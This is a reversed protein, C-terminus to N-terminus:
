NRKRIALYALGVLVITALTFLVNPTILSNLAFQEPQGNVTLEINERGVLGVETPEVSLTFKFSDEVESTQGGPPTVKATITITEGEDLVCLLHDGNSSCSSGAQYGLLVNWGRLGGSSFIKFESEVNGTNTLDVEFRPANGIEGFTINREIDGQLSMEVDLVTEVSLSITIKGSRNAANSVSTAVMELLGGDGNEAGSNVEITLVIVAYYQMPIHSDVLDNAVIKEFAKDETSSIMPSNGDYYFTGTSQNFAGWGKPVLIPGDIVMGNFTLTRTATGSLGSFDFIAEDTMDGTNIVKINFSQSGGPPLVLMASRSLDDVSNLIIADMAFDRDSLIARFVFELQNDPVGDNNEDGNNNDGLNTVRVTLRSSELEEEGDISVVLYMIATARADIDIETVVQGDETEFHKGWGPQATQSIVSFRFRDQINGDNTVTIPFRVTTDSRGTQDDAPAGGSMGHVAKVTITLDQTDYAGGSSVPMVSFTITVEETALADLPLSITVDITGSKDNSFKSQTTITTSELTVSWGVPPSSASVKFTDPGNGQNTVTLTTTADQGPQINYLATNGLSMSAGNSQGVTVTVDATCKPTGGDKGQITITKQSNAEVSDDPTIEITFEKEGNGNNYPLMGSSAGDVSAWLSHSGSFGVNVSWDTNGENSFTAVLTGTEDPDLSLSSKSLELDCEKLEPVNLSFEEVDSASGNPNQDNTVVGEIEWCYKKSAQGEPVQLTVTVWESSENDVTVQSPEVNISLSGDSTCGSGGIPDVSLDVTEQVRGTNEVEVDWEVTSQGSWQKNPSEVTLDVGFVASGAGDGATTEVDQTSTAPEGPQDPPTVQENGTATVTTICSGEANQALTVNLFTEGYDGSEIPQGIQGIAASYGTCDQENAAALNVSVTNAGNNYVRVTYEATEGPNVTQASPSVSVSINAARGSDDALVPNAM